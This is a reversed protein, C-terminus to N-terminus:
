VRWRERRFSGLTKRSKKHLSERGFATAVERSLNRQQHEAEALRRRLGAAYQALDLYTRAGSPLVAAPEHLAVVQAFRQLDLATATRNAQVAASSVLTLCFGLAILPLTAGISFAALAQVSAAAAVATWIGSLSAVEVTGLFV